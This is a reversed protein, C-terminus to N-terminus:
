LLPVGRIGYHSLKTLLIDHDVTDFAKSFDLLIGVVFKGDDLARTLKDILVMFAMYTSHSKRFGFQYSFLIKYHDLYNLLRSYMIKEFVKSITCLISVPRYNNFTEHDGSKFIPIVNALKLEDPFIGESLSLNCIHTLLPCILPLSLRLISPSLNDYGPSSNKLSSVIKYIEQETVPELYLSFTVKAKMFQEPNKNQKEIRKALNPGVNIFFDNFKDSILQKDNTISGDSLKFRRNTYKRKNRNIINKIISWMKKSNSKNILVLDSYYKKEAAKLLHKLKNRYNKYVMENNTSKIKLSKRYLKNKNKIADRLSDSLWPKRTNYKKSIHQLPFCNDHLKRLKNHFLSFAGQTSDSRLVDEWDINSLQSLYSDKNKTTYNRRTIICKFDQAQVYNAIHFIPYHDSIDTMMIGNVSHDRDLIQNSYINDILTASTHTVRTPRTILPIFGGSYMIENFESTLNHSDVNILNINYDGVLYCIKNENKIKEMIDKMIEIFHSIETNPPQYIVGIVINKEKILKTRDIEVFLSECSENFVNLDNRKSYNLHNKLFIGVGGGCKNSRHQEVFSYETLSYLDCTIDNLWTETIAIVPFNISLLQLYNEFHSLNANISRINIHCLSFCRSLDFACSKIKENFSDELYYSCSYGNFLNQENYFNQDPDFEALNNIEELDSGM